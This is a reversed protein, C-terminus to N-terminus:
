TPTVQGKLTLRLNAPTGGSGSFELGLVSGPAMTKAATAFVQGGGTNVPINTWGTVAVGDIKVTVISSGSSMGFYFYDFVVANGLVNRYVEIFGNVVTGIFIPFPFQFLQNFIFDLDGRSFLADLKEAQAASMAGQGAPGAIAMHDQAYQTLIEPTVCFDSDNSPDTGALLENGALPNKVPNDGLRATADPM